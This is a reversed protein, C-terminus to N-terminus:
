LVAGILADACSCKISRASITPIMEAIVKRTKENNKSLLEIVEKSSVPSNAWVDYDTIM